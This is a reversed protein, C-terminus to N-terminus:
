GWRKGIELIALIDWHSGITLSHFLGIFKNRLRQVQFFIYEGKLTCYPKNCIINSSSQSYATIKPCANIAPSQHSTVQCPLSLPTPLTFINTIPVSWTTYNILLLQWSLFARGFIDYSTTFQGWGRRRLYSSYNRLRLFFLYNCIHVNKGINTDNTGRVDM